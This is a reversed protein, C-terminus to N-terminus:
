EWYGSPASCSATVRRSKIGWSWICSRRPLNVRWIGPPIIRPTTNGGQLCGSFTANRILIPVVVSTAVAVVLLLQLGSRRDRRVVLKGLYSLGVAVILFCGANRVWYSLGALAAALVLFAIRRKPSTRGSQETEAEIFMLLSLFTVTSFLSESLIATAFHWCTANVVLLFVLLGSVRPQVHFRRCARLFLPALIVVSVLSIVSGGLVQPIGVLALAAILLPYAPPFITQPAPLRASYYQEDYYLTSTVIGRGAAINDATSLYQFSDNALGFGRGGAIALPVVLFAAGAIVWLRVRSLTTTLM